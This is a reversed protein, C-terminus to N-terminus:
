PSFDQGSKVINNLWFMVYYILGIRMKKPISKYPFTQIIARAREKIVRYQREVHEEKATVNIQMGCEEIEERLSEFENDALVTHVPNNFETFDMKEVIHGKGKYLNLVQKISKSITIKKRDSL